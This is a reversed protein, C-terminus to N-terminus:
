DLARRLARMGAWADKRRAPTKLLEALGPQVLVQAPQGDIPADIWGVTRARRAPGLLAGAALAGFAVIRTPRTLAILRMLFPRCLLIEGPTPVRGGPPRWPILPTLLIAARTLGVSALMADLLAGERGAFPTGSRDEDAGPAGGVFLLGSEPDGDAFVLNTAMDRLTCHEFAAIATKLAALNGAGAAARIAIEVPSGLAPEVVVPRPPPRVLVPAAPRLRDVPTDDLAEDAGWEIQLLLFGLDDM